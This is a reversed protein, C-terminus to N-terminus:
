TRPCWFFALIVCHILLLIAFTAVWSNDWTAVTLLNKKFSPEYTNCCYRYLGSSLDRFRHFLMAWPFHQAAFNTFSGCNRMSRWTIQDESWKVNVLEVDFILTSNQPIQGVRKSGYRGFSFWSGCILALNWVAESVFYHSPIKVGHFTSHHTEKQGWGAYRNVLVFSPILVLWYSHKTVLHLCIYLIYVMSALTGAVSLRGLVQLCCM